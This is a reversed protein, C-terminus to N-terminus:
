LMRGIMGRVVKIKTLLNFTEKHLEKVPLELGEQGLLRYARSIIEWAEDLIRLQQETEMRDREIQKHREKLPVACTM